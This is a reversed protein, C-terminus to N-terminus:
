SLRNKYDEYGFKRVLTLADKAPDYIAISPSNIGNFVSTQSMNYIAMNDFILKDGPKLKRPFSYDGFVDGAACTEGAIRYCHRFEGVAGSGRIVARYDGHTFIVDPVHAVVSTDLIAIDMENHVIDLVTAVMIGANLAIAEGPELYVICGYKKQFDSILRCLLDVDYDERTIHHGGGFNVWKVQRLYLEFKEEVHKLTRELTDAGQECLTHFHLGDLGKISKMDKARVGFRSGPICPNYIPMSIESYEPNLRLGCEIKQKKASDRFQQWQSFSNFVIHDSLTCIEAFESKKFAPSFVHVEKGFIEKGLRAEHLGSACVGALSDRIYPFAAHAAFAKLALLIRCGTRKQVDALIRSNSEIRGLDIIHCPTEATLAAKELGKNGM